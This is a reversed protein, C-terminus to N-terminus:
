SLTDGKNILLYLSNYHSELLCLVNTYCRYLTPGVDEVNIWMTCINYLHKKSAPHNYESVGVMYATVSDAIEYVLRCRYEGTLSSKLSLFVLDYGGGGRNIVDYDDPETVTQTSSDYLRHGSSGDSELFRVWELYEGNNETFTCNFQTRSNLLAATDVPPSTIETCQM